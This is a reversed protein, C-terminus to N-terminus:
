ARLRAAVELAVRALAQRTIRHRQQQIRGLQAHRTGQGLGSGDRGQDDREGSGAQRSLVSYQHAPATRPVRGSTENEVEGISNRTLRVQCSARVPSSTNARSPTARRETTGAGTGNSRDNSVSRSPTSATPRTSNLSPSM